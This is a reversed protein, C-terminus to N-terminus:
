GIGLEFGEDAVGGFEKNAVICEPVLAVVAIVFDNDDIVGSTKLEHSFSVVVEIVFADVDNSDSETQSEPPRTHAIIDFPEYFRTMLTLDSLARIDVDRGGNRIGRGEEAFNMDVRHDHRESASESVDNVGATSEGGVGFPAHKSLFGSEDESLEDEFLDEAAPTSYSFDNGVVSGGEYGSEVDEGVLIVNMVDADGGEVRASITNDLAAMVINPFSEEASTVAVGFIPVLNSVRDEPRFSDRNAFVEAITRVIHDM